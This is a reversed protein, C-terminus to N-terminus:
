KISASSETPIASRMPKIIVRTNLYRLSLRGSTVAKRMAPTAIPGYQRPASPMSPMPKEEDSDTSLSLEIDFTASPNIAKEIPLSNLTECSLVIPLCANATPTSCASAAAINTSTASMINWRMAGSLSDSGAAIVSPAIAVAVAGAAVSM